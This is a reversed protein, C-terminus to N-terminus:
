AALRPLTPRGTFVSTLVALANHGQKRMTSLYARLRCFTEAGTLSRFGGSVKQKVKLMRIDREAQNNDFPVRFDHMFALVAAARTKLRLLLSRLPGQAPRGVRGTPKPPPNARLGSQVLHDYQATFDKLRRPTLHTRGAAQAREVATKITLLLASLRTPWHQRTLESAATLDRLLHANCLSHDCPYPFYGSLADHVAVGRFVPLIGIADMAPRGRKPQVAYYTLQATSAVHLWYTQAAVRLGTEDFHAVAAQTVAQHLAQAVPALAAACSAQATVLTGESLLLQHVDRFYDQTREFPLHQYTQLYVALAKVGPGYQVPQTVDSPFQGATVTQCQACCLHLAQHETVQPRTTPM